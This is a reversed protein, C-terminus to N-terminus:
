VLFDTPVDRLRAIDLIKEKVNFNRTCKVTCTECDECAIKKLNMSDLTERAAQMNKYGYAYMYSRMLTPIHHGAKCQELCEGCQYCFLSAQRSIKELRSREATTMKLNNMVAITSNMQDFTQWGPIISTVNKDELVWKIASAIEKDSVKKKPGMFGGGVLGAVTKMGIIGLGAKEGEAIAKKVEDKNNQSSNYAVLVVDHAKSEIAAKIVEPQKMHTSMGIFRAGGQKKVLKLGEIYPEFLAAKESSVGHLYLIDVYKLGIRKISKEFENVVDQPKANKNLEGFMAGPMAIKTSLVFSDRPKDKFFEGLMIENKGRQYGAATDFHVIGANYAAEVLKPNQTNMVGMSVIPLKIGTRGLTRYIFNAKKEPENAYAKERMITPFLSAGALGAISSKIFKRRNKDMKNDKM